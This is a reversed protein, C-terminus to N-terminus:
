LPQWDLSQDILYRFTEGSKQDTDDIGRVELCTRLVAELALVHQESYGLDQIKADLSDTLKSIIAQVRDAVATSIPLDELLMCVEEEEATPDRGGGYAREIDRNTCGPPLNSM